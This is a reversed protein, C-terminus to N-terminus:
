KVSIPQEARGKKLLKLLELFNNNLKDARSQLYHGWAGTRRTEQLVSLGPCHGKKHVADRGGSGGLAAGPAAWPTQEQADAEMQNLIM